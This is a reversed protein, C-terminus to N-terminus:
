VFLYITFFSSDLRVFLDRDSALFVNFKILNLNGEAAIKKTKKPQQLNDEITLTYQKPAPWPSNM